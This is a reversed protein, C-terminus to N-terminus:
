NTHNFDEGAWGYIRAIDFPFPEIKGVGIIGFSLLQIYVQWLGALPRKRDDYGNMIAATHITIFPINEIAWEQFSEIMVIRDHAGVLSQAIFCLERTLDVIALSGDAIDACIFFLVMKVAFM